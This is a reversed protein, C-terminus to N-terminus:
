ESINIFGDTLYLFIFFRKFFFYLLKNLAKYILANFYSNWHNVAYFLVMVAIISKSLPLVM